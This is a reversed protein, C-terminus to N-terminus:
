APNGRRTSQLTHAVLFADSLQFRLQRAQAREHRALRSADSLQFRLQGLITVVAALGRGAIPKSAAVPRGARGAALFRTPLRSMRPAGQRQHLRRIHHDGMVRRHTGLALSREHVDRADHDFPALHLIQRRQGELHPLMLDLLHAARRTGGEGTADKRGRDRSHRLVTRPQACQRDIEIVVLQKRLRARLLREDVQEAARHAVARQGRPDLLAGGDQGGGDRANSVQDGGAGLLM